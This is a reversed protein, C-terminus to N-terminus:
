GTGRHHIIKPGSDLILRISISSSSQTNQVVATVTQMLVQNTTAIMAGETDVISINQAESTMAISQQFLKNCLSRHHSKRKGCHACAREVKCDKIIHGVKLCNYCCGKMKEKRAQLTRHKSCEDSWHSENCYICTPTHGKTYGALLGGTTTKFHYRQSMRPQGPSASPELSENNSAMEMASIHKRLLERLKPVSWNENEPKLMYLQYRVKQPLKDLILAVFHRHNINEEIAELSRLHCEIM